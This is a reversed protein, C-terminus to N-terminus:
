HFRHICKKKSQKYRGKLSVYSYAKQAKSIKGKIINKLMLNYPSSRGRIIGM